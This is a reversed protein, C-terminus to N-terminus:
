YRIAFTLGVRQSDFEDRALTGGRTLYRYDAQISAHRNLLYELGVRVVYDNESQPIITRFERDRYSFSATALLNRRIEQDINVGVSFDVRGNAGNRITALDGRFVNFAISTRPRPSWRLSGSASVTSFDELTPDDFEAWFVGAAVEGVLKNTLDISFGSQLGYTASDRNVGSRDVDLRADRFVGYTQVFVDIASSVGVLGRASYRITTLDRDDDEAARFDSKRWEGNVVLGFRGPRFSYRVDASSNDILTLPAAIDDNADPDDRREFDRDFAAGLSLTNSSDLKVNLSTRVGYTDTNERTNEAFRRLNLYARTSLESKGFTGSASLEPNVLFIYDDEEDDPRAFINTEYVSGAALSPDLTFAGIHIRRPEYGPRPLNAVSLADSSQAAAPSLGVLGFSLVAAGISVVREGARRRRSGGFGLM